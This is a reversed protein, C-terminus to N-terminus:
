QAIDFTNKYDLAFNRLVYNNFCDGGRMQWLTAPALSLHGERWREHGTTPPLASASTLLVSSHTRGMILQLVQSFLVQVEGLHCLLVSGTSLPFHSSTRFTHAHSLPGWYEDTMCHQPCFLSAGKQGEGRTM